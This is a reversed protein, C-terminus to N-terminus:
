ISIDRFFFSFAHIFFKTRCIKNWKKVKLLDTQKTCGLAELITMKEIADTAIKFKNWLFNWETESGHEIVSCYVPAAIDPHVRNSNFSSIWSLFLFQPKYKFIDSKRLIEKFPMIMNIGHKPLVDMTVGYVPMNWFMKACSIKWILNMLSRNLAMISM